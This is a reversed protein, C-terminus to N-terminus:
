RAFAGMNFNKGRNRAVKQQNRYIVEGDLELVNEIVGGGSGQASSVANYVANYMAEVFGSNELPMVSQKGGFSGILEAGAEGAQFIMGKQLMGGRAFQTPRVSQPLVDPFNTTIPRAAESRAAQLQSM